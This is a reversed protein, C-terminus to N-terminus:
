KNEKAPYGSARSRPAGNEIVTRIMYATDKKVEYYIRLLIEAIFGIMFLMVGLIVFLVSILLLPNDSYNRFFYLKLATAWMFVGGGAVLFFLGWGGFFRLPKWFYSFFFKISLLDFARSLMKQISYKSHGSLRARHEISVEMVRAGRAHALIPWFNFSYGGLLSVDSLFVRRYAKLGCGFDHLRLGTLAAIYLNAFRSFMRRLFPDGRQMRRGVVVDAGGRIAEIIKPIEEPPNQLDADITIVVDGKAEKFAAELAANKGFNRVFVIVKIPSLNKLKEITRDSSGDDVAIIEYPEGSSRLVADLRRHLEEITSEENYAPFVVSIM